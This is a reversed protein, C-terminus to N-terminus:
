SSGLVTKSVSVGNWGMERVYNSPFWGRRPGRTGASEVDKISMQSGTEGSVAIEGDWWGTQDRVHVRIIEGAKFSLYMNANQGNAAAASTSPLSEPNFDHIAQVHTPQPPLATRPSKPAPLRHSNSSSAVSNVSSTSTGAHHNTPRQQTHMM